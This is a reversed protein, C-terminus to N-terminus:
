GVVPTAHCSKWLISFWFQTAVDDCKCPSLGRRKWDGHAYVKRASKNHCWKLCMTLPSVGNRPTSFNLSLGFIGRALRCCSELRLL